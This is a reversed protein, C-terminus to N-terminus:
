CQPRWPAGFGLPREHSEVDIEALVNGQRCARQAPVHDDRWIRRPDEVGGAHATARGPQVHSAELVVFGFRDFQWPAVAYGTGGGAVTHDAGTGNFIEIFEDNAGNPGRVRFESIVLSTAAVNAPPDNVPLIQASPTKASRVTRKAPATAQPVVDSNGSVTDVITATPQVAPQATTTQPSYTGFVIVSASSAKKKKKKKAKPSTNKNGEPNTAPETTQMAVGAFAVQSLALVVIVLGSFVVSVRFSKRM